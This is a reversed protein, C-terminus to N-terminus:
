KSLSPFCQPRWKYVNSSFIFFITLSVFLERININTVETGFHSIEFKQLTKLIWKFARPLAVLAMKYLCSFIFSISFIFLLSLSINTTKANLHSIEIYNLTKLIVKLAMSLTTLAM